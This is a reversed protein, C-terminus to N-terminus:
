SRGTSRSGSRPAAADDDPDDIPSPTDGAARPVPLQQRRTPKPRPPEPLGYERAEEVAIAHMRLQHVPSNNMRDRWWALLVEEDVLRVRQGDRIGSTMPMGAARWRNIERVKRDVRAAAEQYTLLKAEASDVLVRGEDRRRLTLIGCVGSCDACRGM